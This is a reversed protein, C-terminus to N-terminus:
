EEDSDTIRTWIGSKCVYRDNKSCIGIAAIFNGTQKVINRDCISDNKIASM